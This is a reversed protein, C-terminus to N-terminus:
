LIDYIKFPPEKFLLFLNEKFFDFKSSGATELYFFIDVIWGRLSDLREIEVVFVLSPPTLGAAVL